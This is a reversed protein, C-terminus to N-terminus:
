FGLGARVGLNTLGDNHTTLGANSIHDLFISVNAKETIWYGVDLGERFLARSGLQKKDTRSTTLEGDHIAGGLGLNVFFRTDDSFIGQRGYISWTLGGYVYDTNGATNVSLGVHPRPAYAWKLFDPSVFLLEGNIDAGSEKHHGGINVDHALVGVKVEDFVGDAAMAAGASILMAVIVTAGVRWGCGWSAGM